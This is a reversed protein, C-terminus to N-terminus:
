NNLHFPHYISHGNCCGFRGGRSIGLQLSSDIGCVDTKSILLSPGFHAHPHETTSLTYCLSVLEGRYQAATLFSRLFKKWM